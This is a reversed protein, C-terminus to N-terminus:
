FSANSLKDIAMRKQGRKLFLITKDFLWIAGLIGFSFVYPYAPLLRRTESGIFYSILWFFFFVLLTSFITRYFKLFGIFSAVGFCVSFCYILIPLINKEALNEQYPKKMDWKRKVWFNFLSYKGFRAAISILPEAYNGPPSVQRLIRKMSDIQSKFYGNHSQEFAETFNGFNNRDIEILSNVKKLDDDSMPTTKTTALDILQLQYSEWERWQYTLACGGTKIIRLDPYYRYVHVLWPVMFAMMILFTIATEFLASSLNKKFRWIFIFVLFVLPLLTIQLTLNSIAWFLAFLISYRKKNFFLGKIFYYNMVLLILTHFSERLLYNCHTAVPWFLGYGIAIIFAIHSPLVLALILFLFLVSLSDFFAQYFKIFRIEIFEPSVQRTEFDYIEPNRSDILSLKGGCLSWVFYASALFIPYGPERFFTPQFPPAINQSLGNGQVLNVAMNHNTVGDATLLYFDNLSVLVMVRFAVSVGFIVALIKTRSSRAFWHLRATGEPESNDIVANEILKIQWEFIMM